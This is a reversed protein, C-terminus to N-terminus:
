ACNAGERCTGINVDFLQVGPCKIGRATGNTCTFYADCKHEADSYQYSGDSKGICSQLKGFESENDPIEYAPICEGKYPYTFTKWTDNYPCGGLDMVREKFCIKYFYHGKRTDPQLGDPDGICKSNLDACSPGRHPGCPVHSRKYDCLWKYEHRTGCKVETFNECKLTEASFLNPYKCETLHLRPSCYKSKLWDDEFISCNYYQQCEYPNPLILTPHLRCIEVVDSDTVNLHHQLAMIAITTTKLQKTLNEANRSLERCQFQEGQLTRDCRNLLIQLESEIGKDLITTNVLSPQYLIQCGILQYLSGLIFLNLM